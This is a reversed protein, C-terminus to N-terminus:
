AFQPKARIFPMPHPHAPTIQSYLITKKKGRSKNLNAMRYMRLPFAQSLRSSFLTSSGIRLKASGM